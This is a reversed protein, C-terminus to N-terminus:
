LKRLEVKRWNYEEDDIEGRAYREKLIDLANNNLSFGDKHNSKLLVRILFFIGVFILLAVFFFMGLMILTSFISGGGFEYMM